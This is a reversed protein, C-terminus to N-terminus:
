PTLERDGHRLVHERFGERIQKRLDDGDWPKTLFRWIAGHNVADTVSQLDAYGSLVMRITQPHISKVRSLFETGSMRPMRQDSIIVQVENSALMQLGEMPDTTTLIRYGERHLLRKLSNLIAIEDDVLLLTEAVARDGFAVRRGEALLAAFQAAPLPRSFLFGQMEDCGLKRLFHMQAETEVGEAIVTLQLSHALGIIARAVAASNPDCCVENVFSRDIKLYEVPLQTLYALSSYGTGFDDIALKTGAAHLTQLLAITQAPSEMVMSETLELELWRSDLGAAALHRQCVEPLSRTAEHQRLQQQSVNVGVTVIGLGGDLWERQQRCAEALAWEGIAVILGTEEALAIFDGPAVLRDDRQWRLLAEAAVVRGSRLDVRPQYHLVLERRELARRLAGELQLRDVGGPDAAEVHFAYRNRGAQRAQTLAQAAKDLLDEATEGHETSLAIGISGSAHIERGQVDIPMAIADLIKRAVIAIDQRMAVQPMVIIFGQGGRRAVTDARRLCAGLRRSTEQLLRDAARHGLTRDIREFDDLGLELVAVAKGERTALALSQALRDALLGEGPLGTLEDRYALVALKGDKRGKVGTRYRCHRSADM